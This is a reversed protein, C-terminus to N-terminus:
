GGLAASSFLFLLASLIHLLGENESSSDKLLASRSIATVGAVLCWLSALFLATQAYIM